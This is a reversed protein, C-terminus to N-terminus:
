CVQYDRECYPKGDVSYFPSGALKAQCISCTFCELHFTQNTATCGGRGPTIAEGCKACIDSFFLLVFKMMLRVEVALAPEGKTTEAM